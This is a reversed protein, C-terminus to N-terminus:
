NFPPLYFILLYTVYFIDNSIFYGSIEKLSEPFFTTVNDQINLWNCYILSKFSIESSMDDRSLYM